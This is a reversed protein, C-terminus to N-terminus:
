LELEELTYVEDLEMEKYMSKNTFYPLVITEIGRNENISKVEIKIYRYEKLQSNERKMICKVRNRFPKIIAGLYEKEEKDLIEKREYLTTLIYEKDLTQKKIYRKVKVIDQYKNGKINKLNENYYKLNFKLLPNALLHGDYILRNGDRLTVIDGFKLDEKRFKM